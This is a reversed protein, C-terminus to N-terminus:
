IKNAPFFVDSEAMSAVSSVPPHSARVRCPSVGQLVCWAEGPASVGRMVRWSPHASGFKVSLVAVM